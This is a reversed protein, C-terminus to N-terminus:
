DKIKKWDEDFEKKSLVIKVNRKKLIVMTWIDDTYFEWQQQPYITMECFGCFTYTMKKIAKAIGHEMM